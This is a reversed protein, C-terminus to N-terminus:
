KLWMRMYLVSNVFPVLLVLANTGNFNRLYALIQSNQPFKLRFRLTPKTKCKPEKNVCNKKWQNRNKIKM